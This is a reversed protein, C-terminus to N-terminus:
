PGTPGTTGEGQLDVAVEPQPVTPILKPLTDRPGASVGRLQKHFKPVNGSGYFKELLPWVTSKLHMSDDRLKEMDVVYFPKTVIVNAGHNCNVRELKHDIILTNSKDWYPWQQFVRELPKGWSVPAGGEFEILECEQQSWIFLPVVSSSEQVRRLMAPVIEAMYAASKSGWFAVHFHLLCKQLFEMLWPRCVVRRTATRMTYRIKSNPNPEDVLSCDLLTGHVNFVLLNSTRLSVPSKRPALTDVFSVETSAEEANMAPADVKSPSPQQLKKQAKASSASGAVRPLSHVQMKSAALLEEAAELMAGNSTQGGGPASERHAIGKRPDGEEVNPVVAKDTM